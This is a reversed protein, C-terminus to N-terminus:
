AELFEGLEYVCHGATLISDPSILTASCLSISDDTVDVDSELQGVVTFPFGTAVPDVVQVREDIGFILLDRLRRRKGEDIAGLDARSVGEPVFSKTFAPVDQADLLHRRHPTTTYVYGERTARHAQVDSSATAKREQPKAPTSTARARGAGRKSFHEYGTFVFGQNKYRDMVSRDVLGDERMRRPKQNAELARSAPLSSAKCTGAMSIVIDQCTAVCENVYTVGDAGCVPDWTTACGSDCDFAASAVTATQLGLIVAVMCALQFCSAM